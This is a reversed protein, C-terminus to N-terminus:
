NGKYIINYKDIMDGAFYYLNIVDAIKIKDSELIETGKAASQWFINAIDRNEQKLIENSKVEETLEEGISLLYDYFISEKVKKSIGKMKRYLIGVRYYNINLSILNEISQSIEATNIKNYALSQNCFVSVLKNYADKHSTEEKTDIYGSYQSESIFVLSDVNRNFYLALCIAIHNKQCSQDNHINFGLTIETDGHKFNSEQDIFTLSTINKDTLCQILHSSNFIDSKTLIQVLEANTLSSFNENNEASPKYAHVVKNKEDVRFVVSFDSRGLIKLRYNIDNVINITNLVKLNKIPYDIAICFDEIGSQYFSLNDGTEENRIVLTFEDEKEDNKKEVEILEFECIFDKLPLIKDETKKDIADKAFTGFDSYCKTNIKSFKLM